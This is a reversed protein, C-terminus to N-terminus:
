EKWDGRNWSAHSSRPAGAAEANNDGCPGVGSILCAALVDAPWVFREYVIVLPLIGEYQGTVAMVGIAIEEPLHVVELLIIGATVRGSIGIGEGLEDLADGAADAEDEFCDGFDGWSSVGCLGWPDVLHVPRNAVYSYRNLAQPSIVFGTFPDQSLFRGLTPDYYRARLYELGTPDNQEGTFSWETASGAHSRVSGFVDYNYEGAVAGAGDALQATSGLGDYLHYEQNGGSDIRSILDLGYVYSNGASDQIIVPLASAVDWTYSTTATGVTRSVRLGDGNYVYTSATGGV